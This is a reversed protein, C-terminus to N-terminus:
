CNSRPETARAEARSCLNLLPGPAKTAQTHPRKKESWPDFRTGLMALHIRLRQVVLTAWDRLQLSTMILVPCSLVFVTIKICHDQCSISWYISSVCKLQSQQCNSERHTQEISTEGLLPTEAFGGQSCRGSHKACLLPQSFLIGQIM